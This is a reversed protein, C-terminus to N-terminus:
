FSFGQVRFTASRGEPTNSNQLVDSPGVAFPVVSWLHDM